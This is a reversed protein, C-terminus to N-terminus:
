FHLGLAVYPDGRGHISVAYGFGLDLLPSNGVSVADLALGSFFRGPVWGVDISLNKQPDLWYMELAIGPRLSKGQLHMWCLKPAPFESARRLASLKVPVGQFSDALFQASQEFLLDSYFIGAYHGANIRIRPPRGLAEWLAQACDSPVISDYRGNVMLIARGRVAAAYNLPELEKWRARLEDPTLGQEEWALRLGGLLLSKRFLKVLDGGGLLLVGAQLRPEQGMVPVALVAGLSLGVLGLRTADIEPRAALWEVGARADAIAQHLARTTWEFDPSIMGQGGSYGELARPGHFPLAPLLSAIGRQLLKHCFQREREAKETGLCHLVLVAPFPGRGRPVFYRAWVTDNAAYGSPEPSAFSVQYERYTARAAVLIFPDQPSAAASSIVGWLIGFIGRSRKM